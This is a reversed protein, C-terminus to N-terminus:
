DVSLSGEVPGNGKTTQLVDPDHESLEMFTLKAFLFIISYREDSVM